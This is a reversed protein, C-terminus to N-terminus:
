QYDETITREIKSVFLKSDPAGGLIPSFIHGTYIENGLGPIAVKYRVGDNADSKLAAKM